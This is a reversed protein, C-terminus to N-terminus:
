STEDLEEDTLMEGLRDLSREWTSRHDRIWQELTRFGAPDLSCTRVRGSKETHLLAVEELIQLHQGVATLTIGLPEALSSVSLPRDVLRDLIARRTPDGLAHFLRDVDPQAGNKAQQEKV